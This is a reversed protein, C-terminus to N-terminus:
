GQMNSYGPAATGGATPRMGMNVQLPVASVQIPMRIATQGTNPGAPVIITPQSPPQSMSAVNIQSQSMSGVTMVPKSQSSTTTQITLPQSFNTSSSVPSSKSLAVNIQSQSM